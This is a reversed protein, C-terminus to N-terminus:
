MALVHTLSTHPPWQHLLLLYTFSTALQVCVCACLGMLGHVENTLGSTKTLLLDLHRKYFRVKIGFGFEVNIYLWASGNKNVYFQQNADTTIDVIFTNSVQVIVPKDKVTTISNGVLVTHDQASIKIAMTSGTAPSRLLLGLNGLFTSVNAITHSEDEAPLVFQTNLEVYRDKILNFMFDPQGQVSFCLNDGNQLPLFFHPDNGGSPMTVLHIVNNHM